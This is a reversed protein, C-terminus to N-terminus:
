NAGTAEDRPWFLSLGSASFAEESDRLRIADGVHNATTYVSINFCSPAGRHCTESGLRLTDLRVRVGPLARRRTEARM